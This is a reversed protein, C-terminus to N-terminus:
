DSRAAPTAQRWVTGDELIADDPHDIDNIRDRVMDDTLGQRATISSLCCMARNPCHAIALDEVKHMEDARVYGHWCSADSWNDTLTVRYWSPDPDGRNRTDNTM